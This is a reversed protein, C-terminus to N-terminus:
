WLYNYMADSAGYVTPPCVSTTVPHDLMVAQEVGIKSLINTVAMRSDTNINM